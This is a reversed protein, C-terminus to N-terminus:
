NRIMALEPAAQSVSKSFNSPAAHALREAASMNTNELFVRRTETAHLRIEKITPHMKKLEAHRQKRKETGGRRCARCLGRIGCLRVSSGPRNGSVLSAHRRQLLAIHNGGSRIKFFNNPQRRLTGFPVVRQAPDQQSLSLNIRGDCLKLDSYSQFGFERLSVHIKAICKNSFSVQLRRQALCAFGCPERRVIGLRM